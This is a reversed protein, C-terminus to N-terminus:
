IRHVAEFIDRHQVTLELGLEDAKRRLEDMFARRDISLPVEAEYIMTNRHPDDGGRFAAKLQTINVSFRAMIGTIGAVLGLRDPGMTVIVFPDSEIPAPPTKEPELRKVLVDLGLPDLARVLEERLTQLPTGDPVSAILIGAFEGQLTTQSVDEVNCGQTMLVGSVAAVIGPRDTGLISLVVKDM